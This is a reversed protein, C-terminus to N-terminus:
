IGPAKDAASGGTRAPAAELKRLYENRQSKYTHPLLSVMNTVCVVWVLKHSQEEQSELSRSVWCDRPAAENYEPCTTDRNNTATRPCWVTAQAHMHTETPGQRRACSCPIM